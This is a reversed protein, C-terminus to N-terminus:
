VKTLAQVAWGLPGTMRMPKESAILCVCEGDPSVQPQHSISPDLECFDGAAMHIQGDDYAGTLVTTFEVGGHSHPVTKLGAPLRLLYLLDPGGLRAKRISMGPALWKARGFPIRDVTSGSEAAAPPTPDDLARLAKELAGTELTEGPLAEIMAGGFSELDAVQDRCHACRELHAAVVAGFATRLAGSAYDALVAESPHNAIRM